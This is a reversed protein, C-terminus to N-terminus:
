SSYPAESTWEISSQLSLFDQEVRVHRRKGDSIYDFVRHTCHMQSLYVVSTWIIEYVVRKESKSTPSLGRIVSFIQLYGVKFPTDSIGLFSIQVASSISQSFESVKASTNGNM